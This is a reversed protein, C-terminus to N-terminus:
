SMHGICVCLVLCFLTRVGCLLFTFLMCYSFTGLLFLSAYSHKFKFSKYDTLCWCFDTSVHGKQLLTTWLLVQTWDIWMSINKEKKEREVKQWALGAWRYLSGRFQAYMKKHWWWFSLVLGVGLDVGWPITKYDIFCCQNSDYFDFRAATLPKITFINPLECFHQSHQLVVRLMPCSGSSTLYFSFGASRLSLRNWPCLGLFKVVPGSIGV